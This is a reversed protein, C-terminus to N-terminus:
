LAEELASKLELVGVTGTKRWKIKGKQFIILTPISRIGYAQAAPQNKDVDIKIIAYKDGVGSKLEELIPKMAQCPGCWDAYFDVLVPKDGNILEQFSKM